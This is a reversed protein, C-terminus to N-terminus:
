IERKTKRNARKVRCHSRNRSSEFWSTVGNSWWILNPEIVSRGIWSAYPGMSGLFWEIHYIYMFHVGELLLALRVQTSHFLDMQAMESPSPREQLKMLDRNSLYYDDNSKVETRWREDRELIERGLKTGGDGSSCSFNIRAFRFPGVLASHRGLHKHEKGRLIISCPAPIYSSMSGALSSPDHDILNLRDQGYVRDRVSLLSVLPDSSLVSWSFSLSVSPGRSSSKESYSTSKAM